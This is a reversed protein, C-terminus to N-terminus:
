LPKLADQVLWELSAAKVPYVSSTGAVYGFDGPNSGIPIVTWVVNKGNGWEKCDTIAKQFDSDTKCEFFAHDDFLGEKM